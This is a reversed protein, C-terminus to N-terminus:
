SRRLGSVRNLFSKSLVALGGLFGRGLPSWDARYERQHFAKFCSLFGSLAM